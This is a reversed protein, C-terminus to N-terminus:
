CLTEHHFSYFWISTMMLHILIRKAITLHSETPCAQLRACIRVSIDNVDPGSRDPDPKSNTGHFYCNYQCEYSSVEEIDERVKYLSMDKITQGKSLSKSFIHLM